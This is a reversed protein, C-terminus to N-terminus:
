QVRLNKPPAPPVTNGYCNNANFTLIGNAKPTNDYCVHAPNRFVHGTADEGGTVDPGIPPWPMTGWWNPKASLYFSAPLNRSAPLASAFQSLGVPVESAIWQTAANVTDYNGWRMLTTAVLPDLPVVNSTGCAGASFDAWGLVYISTNCSTATPVVSQYNTHYGPTGLINGIMNVYRSHSHLVVPVTDNNKGPELGTYQNRFNTAFNHSGHIADEVFGTGENGEVLYMGTGGDHAWGPGPQMWTQNNYFMDIAFNYAFVSGSTGGIVIPTVIHQFINNEVLLDSSQWPEVGYSLTQANRTGYFYSDRVVCRAANEFWVHNRGGGANTVTYISRVNKVWSQYANFFGVGSLNDSSSHDLTLNEIGVGTITTNAWWAGPNQSSRWNPMHLGPAITVVNGNIATVQVYQQQIANIGNISRGPAPTDTACGTHSADSFNNDCVFVQGTDLLDNKQDLILIKGVSLNAVSGLTIQTTGKAYGATWTTLNQQSGTWNLSGQVCVDANLGSCSTNATFKLITQDPGAGRLTVNSHQAFDIGTINYTGANLFVVQGSPCSAIASNIQAATAGPNLTSCITTRNPIGGPIGAQSWDVARSSDLIGSWLQAHAPTSLCLLILFFLLLQIRRM